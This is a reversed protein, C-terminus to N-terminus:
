PKTSPILRTLIIGLEYLLYMPVALLLMNIPDGTPTIIAALIAVIIVAHRRYQTLQQPSVLKLMAMVYIIVPLEFVLGNVLVLLSVTRLFDSLAPQNSILETNGFGILFSIAVPVTVFWGFAIGALFFFTTVPLAWRIFKQESENELGPYIFAIFQYIIMPMAIIVGVVLAVLMYSTFVEATGVAQLPPYPKDTPAFSVILFDVLRTPGLVLFLGIVMGVVVSTVAWTMRTRLEILHPKFMEFLTVNEGGQEGTTDNTQESM